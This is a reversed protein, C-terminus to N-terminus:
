GNGPTYDLEMSALNRSKARSGTMACGEDDLKWREVVFSRSDISGKKFWSHVRILFWLKSEVATGKNTNM